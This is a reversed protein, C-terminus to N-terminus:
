MAAQLLRKSGVIKIAALLLNFVVAATEREMGSNGEEAITTYMAAEDEESQLQVRAAVSAVQLSSTTAYDCDVNNSGDEDEVTTAVRPQWGGSPSKVGMTGVNCDNVASLAAMEKAHGCLSLSFWSSRLVLAAARGAACLSGAGDVVLWEGHNSIEPSKWSKGWSRVM